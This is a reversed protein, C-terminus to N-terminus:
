GKVCHSTRLSFIVAKREEKSIYAELRSGTLVGACWLWEGTPHEAAPATPAAESVGVVVGGPVVQGAPGDLVGDWGFVDGAGALQALAEGELAGDQVLQLLVAAPIRLVRQAALRALLPAGEQCPRWRSPADKVFKSDMTKFMRVGISAIQLQKFKM